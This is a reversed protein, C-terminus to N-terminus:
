NNYLCWNTSIIRLYDNHYNPHSLTNHTSDSAHTRSGGGGCFYEWGIYNNNIIMLVSERRIQNTIQRINAM